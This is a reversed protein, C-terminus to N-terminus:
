LAFNWAQLAGDAALQHLRFIHLSCNGEAHLVM